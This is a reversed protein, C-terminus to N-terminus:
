RTMREFVDTRNALELWTRVGPFKECMKKPGMKHWATHHERCLPMLNRVEDGGGAGKSTVHHADGGCGGCAVCQMTKVFEFLDENVIRKNKM